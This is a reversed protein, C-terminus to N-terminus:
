SGSRLRSAKRTRDFAGVAFSALSCASSSVMAPRAAATVAGSSTTAPWRSRIMGQSCARCFQQQEGVAVVAAGVQRLVV